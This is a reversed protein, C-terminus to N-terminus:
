ADVRSSSALVFAFQVSLAYDGVNRVPDGSGVACRGRWSRAIRATVRGAILIREKVNPRVVRCGVRTAGIKVRVAGIGRSM